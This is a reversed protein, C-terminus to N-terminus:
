RTERILLEILGDHSRVGPKARLKFRYAPAHLVFVYVCALDRQEASHHPFGRESLTNTAIQKLFRLFCLEPGM